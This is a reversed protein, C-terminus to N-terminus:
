VCCARRRLRGRCVSRARRRGRRRVGLHTAAGAAAVRPRSGAHAGRPAGGPPAPRALWWGPLNWFPSVVDPVANQVAADLVLFRPMQFLFLYPQAAYVRSQLAAMAADHGGPPMENWIASLLSDVGADAFGGYNYRDTSTSRWVPDLDLGLNPYWQGIFATFTGAQLRGVFEGLPLPRVDVGAGVRRLAAAVDRAIGVRVSDGEPALITFALRAGRRDRVADGDSDVFGADTLAREAARRDTALVAHTDAFALAPVLPGRARTGQGLTWRQMLGEVDVAQALARRVAVDRLREDRLNWGIFVYSRGVLAVVRAGAGRLQPVLTVPVDDVVDVHGARFARVAAEPERFEVRVTDLFAPPYGSDDHRVLVLRSRSVSHIRFPGSALRPGWTAPDLSDHWAHAPLPWLLAHRTRQWYPTKFRLRLRGEVATASELLDVRAREPSRARPDGVLTAALIFDRPEVAAGDSWRTRRLVFDIDIGNDLVDTAAYPHTRGNADIRALPPVVHEYFYETTADMGAIWYPEELPRVVAVRLTGGPTPTAPPVAADRGCGDLTV